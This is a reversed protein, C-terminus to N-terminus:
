EPKEEKSKPPSADSPKHRAVKRLAANFAEEDENCGLKRAAEIFQDSQRKSPERM